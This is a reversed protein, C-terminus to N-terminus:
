FTLSLGTAVVWGENHNSDGGTSAKQSEDDFEVWGGSAVLDVGPSLSYKGSVQYTTMQDDNTDATSDSNVSNMYSFSVQWIGADYLLGADWVHGDINTGLAAMGQGSKDDLTRQRFSGGLTFGAYALQGGASWEQLDGAVGAANADGWVFGSSLKLGVPGFTNAYGAGVGYVGMSAPQALNDEGKSAAGGAHPIYSAGLTLGYFSPAVYTIKDANDDTDIETTKMVSVNAPQVISNGSNLLSDAGWVGAADPAMVHLLVAGNAETGVIFKGFQTEMFVYSKDIVDGGQSTETGGGAELEINIGIKMGNDLTTDGSFFVENDGKVDVNAYGVGAGDEFSSDQWAGVVWWKSFGGLELKIKEAAQAPGSSLLGAAVLATSAILIKKM